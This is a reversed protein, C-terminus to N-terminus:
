SNKTIFKMINMKDLNLILKNAAFWKNMCSLIINSVSCFDEFNRTSIIVSTDDAYLIAESVSNIRLPLYTIYIISLLPGLTSGQPAGHKVTGWDSFFNQISNPSKVEVKHRRNTSYSRFWDESVGQIGSFHLKALCFKM